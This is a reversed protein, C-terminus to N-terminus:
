NLIIKEDVFDLSKEDHAIYIRLSKPLTDRIYELIKRKSSQDLNSMAEDLILIKPKRLLARALNIKQKQGSSLNIGGAAIVTDLGLPFSNIVEELGINKLIDYIYEDDFSDAELFLNEKVTGAMIFPRSTIQIVDKRYSSINNFIDNNGLYIHGQDPKYLSALINSLTSKGSGNKGYIGYTKGFYFEESFDKLVYSTAGYSFRLKKVSLKKSNNFDIQKAISETEEKTVHIIDNLKRVMVVVNQIEKQYEIINKVPSTFYTILSIYAILLGISIGGNIVLIGGQWLVCLTGVSEILIIISSQVNQYIVSIKEQSTLKKANKLFKRTFFNELQFVKVTEYGNLIENLSTITRSNIDIIKTNVKNLPKIFLITILLYSFFIGLTISFLEKSIVFLIAGGALAIFFELFLSLVLRTLISQVQTAINYRTLVEGSNKSKLNVIEMNILKNLFVSFLSDNMRKPMKAIFLTRVIGLIWQFLYLLIIAMFLYNFNDLINLYIKEFFNYTHIKQVSKETQLIFTDIFKQYSFSGIFSILAMIISFFLVISLTGKEQKLSEYYFNHNKMKPVSNKIKDIDFNVIRGTWTSQFDKLEQKLIGLAPDFIKIHKKNIAEVVVFHALGSKTIIHAIFPLHIENNQIGEILEAWNGELGEPNLNLKRSGDLMGQITTGSESTKTLEKATVLSLKGGSLNVITALCAPGCDKIETQRIRKFM